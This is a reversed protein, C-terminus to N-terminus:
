GVGGLLEFGELRHVIHPLPTPPRIRPRTDKRRRGAFRHPLPHFRSLPSIHFTQPSFSGLTVVDHLVRQAKLSLRQMQTQRRSGLATSRHRRAAVNVHFCMNPQEVVESGQQISVERRVLNGLLCSMSGTLLPHRGSSLTFGSMAQQRSLHKQTDEVEAYGYADYFLLMIGSYQQLVEKKELIGRKTLIAHQLLKCLEDQIDGESKVGDAGLIGITAGGNGLKRVSLRGNKGEILPHQDTSTAERTDRIFALSETVLANWERTNRKPLEPQHMTLLAYTGRNDIDECMSRKIIDKLAMGRARYGANTVVSTVEAAFTHGDVAIWFDPPDDKVKRVQVDGCRCVNRLYHALCDVSVWEEDIRNM